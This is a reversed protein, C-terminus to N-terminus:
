NWSFLEVGVGKLTRLFDALLKNFVIQQELNSVHGAHEVVKLISGKIKGHMYEAQALPTVEDESGVIILTPIGIKSLGSSSEAREAIAVLGRSITQASNSLFVTKVQAVLKKKNKLADKSFVKKIFGENFGNVGNAKIDEIADYRKQKVEPTDAICQTDCLILAEFRGPFRRVANLAIYGGMSLGCIVAKDISLNDMFKILDDTFLDISLTTQEDTSKGFGRIDLSILRYISQLSDLQLHWMTKDFPFGHLFIIPVNGEGVDDYSLNFNNVRIAQNYGKAETQMLHNMLKEM